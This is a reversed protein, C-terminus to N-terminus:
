VNNGKQGTTLVVTTNDCFSFLRSGTRLNGTQQKVQATQEPMRENVNDTLTCFFQACTKESYSSAIAIEPFIDQWSRAERM